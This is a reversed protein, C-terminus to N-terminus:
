RRARCAGTERRGLRMNQPAVVAWVVSSAARDTQGPSAASRGADLRRGAQQGPSPYSRGRAEGDTRQADGGPGFTPAGLEDASEPKLRHLRNEDSQVSAVQSQRAM